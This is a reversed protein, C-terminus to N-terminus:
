APRRMRGAFGDPVCFARLLSHPLFVIPRSREIGCFCGPHVFRLHRHHNAALGAIIICLPLVSKWKM